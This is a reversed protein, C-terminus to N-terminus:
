TQVAGRVRFQNHFEARVRGGQRGKGRGTERQTPQRAPGIFVAEWPQRYLLTAPMGPATRFRDLERRRRDGAGGATDARRAFVPPRPSVLSLIGLQGWPLM